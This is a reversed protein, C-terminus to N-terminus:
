SRRSDWKSLMASWFIEVGNWWAAREASTIPVLEVPVLSIFNAPAAPVFGLLFLGSLGRYCCGSHIGSVLWILVMRTRM